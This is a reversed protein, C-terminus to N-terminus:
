VLSCHQKLLFMIQSECTIYFKRSAVNFFLPYMFNFDLKFICEIYKVHENYFDNIFYKIHM